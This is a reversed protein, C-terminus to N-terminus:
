TRRKSLMPTLEQEWPLQQSLFGQFMVAGKGSVVLLSFGFIDFFFLVLFVLFCLVLFVLFFLVFFLFVLFGFFM